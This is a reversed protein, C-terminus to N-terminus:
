DNTQKEAIASQKQNFGVQWLYKLFPKVNPNPMWQGRYKAFVIIGQSAKEREVLLYTEAIDENEDHPYDDPVIWECLIRDGERLVDTQVRDRNKLYQTYSSHECPFMKAKETTFHGVRFVEHCKPCVSGMQSWVKIASVHAEQCNHYILWIDEGELTELMAIAEEISIGHAIALEHAQVLITKM